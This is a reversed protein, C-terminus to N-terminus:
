EALDPHLVASNIARPSIGIKVCKITHENQGSYIVLKDATFVKIKKSGTVTNISVSEKIDTVDVLACAAALSIVSVPSGGCYVKNGSDFFGQQEISKDGCWIVCRVFERKVRASIKKSLARCAFVLVLVFFLPMGIPVSSVIYGQGSSYEWGTLAFLAILAGGAVQLGFVRMVGGLDHTAMKWVRTVRLGAVIAPRGSADKGTDAVLLVDAALRKRLDHALEALVGSGSEEQGELVLRIAPLREGRAIAARLGQLLAFWQGKDDQAGRAYVRGGRETPEFPPTEWQEIPDVPQVDYHGYVLVTHAAGEAPREAVVLPPKAPDGSVVEAEFGLGELFARIWGACAQCDGLRGPDAGVSPFRLLAFYDDLIPRRNAEFWADITAIDM